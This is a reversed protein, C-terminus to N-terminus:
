SSRHQARWSHMDLHNANPGCAAGECRAQQVPVGAGHIAEVTPETCALALHEGASHMCLVCARLTPVQAVKRVVPFANASTM